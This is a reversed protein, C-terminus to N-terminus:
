FLISHHHSLCLHVQPPLTSHSSISSIQSLHTANDRSRTVLCQIVTAPFGSQRLPRSTPPCYCHLTPTHAGHMCFVKGQPGPAVPPLTEWAQSGLRQGFHRSGATLANPPWAWVSAGAERDRALIKEVMKGDEWPRLTEKRYTCYLVKSTSGIGEEGTKQSSTRNNKGSM